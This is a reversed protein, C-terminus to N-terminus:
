AASSFSPLCSVALSSHPSHRRCCGCVYVCFIHPYAGGACCPMLHLLTSLVPATCSSHHQQGDVKLCDWQCWRLLSRVWSYMGDKKLAQLENCPRQEAPVPAELLNLQPGAEKEAKVRLSHRRPLAHSTRCPATRHKHCPCSTSLGLQAM